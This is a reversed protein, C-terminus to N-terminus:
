VAGITMDVVISDGKKLPLLKAGRGGFYAIALASESGAQWTARCSAGCSTM